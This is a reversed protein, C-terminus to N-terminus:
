SKSAVEKWEESYIQKAVSLDDSVKKIHSM